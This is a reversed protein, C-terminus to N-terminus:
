PYAPDLPVYAGGAKLVGLLGVFMEVSREMYIGVLVESQVQLLRLTRALQTARQDLEGYTIQEDEFVVAVAEPSNAVQEAFYEQVSREQAREVTTANWDRLLQRQETESLLSHREYRGDPEYALATLAQAYYHSLTKVQEAGLEVPNYRLSLRVQESL